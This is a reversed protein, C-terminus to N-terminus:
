EYRLAVMPDVRMARRAPVYCAALAIGCLLMAVAVFTLPDTPKVGFLLNTMLRTLGLAAAFGIMIGLGAMRGGQGLILRLIDTRQAGLAMRVGIEHTRQGVLYSIVGYIGVSALALALAAFIGLLIVSFRRAALSDSIIEDMTQASYIVQQSSMHSSTRRISAFLGTATENYRVVVGSGSPMM